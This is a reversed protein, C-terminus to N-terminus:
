QALFKPPMLLILFFTLFALIHAFIRSVHPVPPSPFFVNFTDVAVAIKAEAQPM